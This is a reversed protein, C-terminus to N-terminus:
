TRHPSKSSLFSSFFVFISLIWIYYVVIVPKLKNREDPGNLRHFLATVNGSLRNVDHTHACTRQAKTWDDCSCQWIILGYLYLRCDIQAKKLQQALARARTRSLLCDLEALKSHPLSRIAVGNMQIINCNPPARMYYCKEM